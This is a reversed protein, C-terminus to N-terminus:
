LFEEGQRVVGRQVLQDEVHELAKRMSGVDPYRREPKEQLAGALFERWAPVLHRPLRGLAGPSLEEGTLLRYAMLGMSYLDSRADLSLGRRQEPSMYTYTGLLAATEADPDIPLLTSLDGLSMSRGVSREARTKVWTEGVLRVMGFDSIKVEALPGGDLRGVSSILVNSPKLDCHIVGTAHAHDLAELMNELTVLITEQRLGRPHRRALDALSNMRVGNLEVSKMLEMALWWVGDNEGFEHVRVIRPHNLRSMVRVERKFRNVEGPRDQWERRLVKLACPAGTDGQIAEYVEGMGGFGVARIIEYEGVRQGAHFRFRGNKEFGVVTRDRGISPEREGSRISKYIKPM